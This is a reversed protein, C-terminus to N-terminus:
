QEIIRTIYYIYTSGFIYCIINGCLHDSNGSYRYIYLLKIVNKRQADIYIYIDRHIM